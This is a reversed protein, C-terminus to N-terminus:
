SRRRTTALAVALLLSSTHTRSVGAGAGSAAVRGQRDHTAPPMAGVWAKRRPHGGDNASRATAVAIGESRRSGRRRRPHGESAMAGAVLGALSTCLKGLGPMLTLVVSTDSPCYGGTRHGDLCGDVRHRSRVSRRDLEDQTFCVRWALIDTTGKAGGASGPPHTGHARSTRWRPRSQDKRPRSRTNPPLPRRRVKGSGAGGGMRVGGVGVSGASGPPV